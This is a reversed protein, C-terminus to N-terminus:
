KLILSDRFRDFVSLEREFTKLPSLYNLDYICRDSQVVITKFKRNSKLFYGEGTIEISPQGATTLKKESLIKLSRWPSLLSDIVERLEADNKKRDRCASNISIIASTKNSQWAGDLSEESSEIKIWDSNIEHLDPIHTSSHADVPKVEGVLVTSTACGTVLFFFVGMPLFFLKHQKIFSFLFKM